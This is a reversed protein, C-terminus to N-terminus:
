RAFALVPRLRRPKAFGTPPVFRSPPEPLCPHAGLIKRGFNNRSRPERFRPGDPPASPPAAPRDGRARRETRSLRVARTSVTGGASNAFGSRVSLEVTQGGEAGSRGFHNRSRAGRFRSSAGAAASRRRRVCCSAGVGPPSGPVGAPAVAATGNGDRLLPRALSARASWSSPGARGHRAARAELLPTAVARCGLAEGSQWRRRAHGPSETDVIADHISCSPCKRHHIDTGAKAAGAWAQPRPRPEADPCPCSVPPVDADRVARLPKM